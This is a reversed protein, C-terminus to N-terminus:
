RKYNHLDTEWLIKKRYRDIWHIREKDLSLTNVYCTPKPFVLRASNQVMLEYSVCHGGPLITSSVRLYTAQLTSWLLTGGDEPWKWCFWLDPQLDM